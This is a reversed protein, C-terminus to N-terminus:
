ARQEKAPSGTLSAYRVTNCPATPACECTTEERGGTASGGAPSHASQKLMLLIVHWYGTQRRITQIISHRNYAITDHAKPSSTWRLRCSPSTELEPPWRRNLSFLSWCVQSVINIRYGKFVWKRQMHPATNQCWGVRFFQEQLGQCIVSIPQIASPLGHRQAVGNVVAIRLSPQHQVNRVTLIVHHRVTHTKTCCHTRLVYRIENM